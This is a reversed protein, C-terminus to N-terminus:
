AHGEREGTSLSSTRVIDKMKEIEFKKGANPPVTDRMFCLVAIAEAATFAVLFWFGAARGDFSDPGGHNLQVSTQISTIIAAGAASGLQLSCTFVAGVIGAVEPPTVAFM